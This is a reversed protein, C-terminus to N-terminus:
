IGLERLKEDRKWMQFYEEDTLFNAELEALTLYVHRAREIFPKKWWSDVLKGDKYAGYFEDQVCLGYGTKETGANFTLDGRGVVRYTTDPRLGEIGSVCRVNMCDDWKDFREM